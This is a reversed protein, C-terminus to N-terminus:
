AFAMQDDWSGVHEIVSNSYAIDFSRDALQLHRGDGKAKRFRGKEWEEDELNVLMVKPSQAILTWNFEYGGVDVINTTEDVGFMEVFARMRKSRFHRLIPSLIAHIRKMHQGGRVRASKPVRLSPASDARPFLSTTALWRAPCVASFFAHACTALSAGFRAM